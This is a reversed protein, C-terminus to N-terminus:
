ASYQQKGAKDPEIENQCVRWPINVHICTTRKVHRDKVMDQSVKNIDNATVRGTVLRRRGEREAWGM